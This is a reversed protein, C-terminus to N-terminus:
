LITEGFVECSSDHVGSKLNDYMDDRPLSM